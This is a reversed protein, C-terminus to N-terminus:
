AFRGSAINEAAKRCAIQVPDWVPSFPPAYALDAEAVDAVTLRSWMAMAAIDIRKGAGRGGVVQAGVLRGESREAVIQVTMPDAEPMYGSATTSDMRVVDVDWGHDRAWSATVGARGVEAEGARTIATGVIGAFTASGGGINTGAVRGAKNAHTALPVFRHEAAIRDYVECCDGAAWIGDVVRQREDPLLGGRAGVRLGAEAALETRPQVGIAVAVVDARVEDVGADGNLCAARVRGSRDVDLGDVEVGTIVTVGARELAQRVLAGMPLDLSGRLPEPGRTVMTTVYGRRVFSEAVEVGIYGGGVVLAHRSGSREGARDTADVGDLLAIWAAGDDLTAVPMVAPLDRAWPPRIPQAGTAFLLDDFGIRDGGRSAGDAGRVQVTGRDLDIGTVTTGLRLDIGNARHQAATRAVLDDASEVDGAMWYPIGCASYSTHATAELVIVELDAGTRAAVRLAQSAASMGAGDAGIVVLRRSMGAVTTAVCRMARARGLRRSGM